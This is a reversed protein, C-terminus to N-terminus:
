LRSFSNEPLGAVEPQTFIEGMFESSGGTWTHPWRLPDNLCAQFRVITKSANEHGSDVGHANINNFVFSQGIKWAPRRPNSGSLDTSAARRSPYTPPM